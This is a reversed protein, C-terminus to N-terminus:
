KGIFKHRWIAIVNTETHHEDPHNKYLCNAIKYADDFTNILGFANLDEPSFSEEFGGCNTLASVEFSLDLLEYGLFDHGEMVINNCDQDPAIIVTLFNFKEEFKINALVFESTKYLGSLSSEGWHVQEWYSNNEEEVKVLDENLMYDLGAVEKLHSLKSWGIYNDWGQNKSNYVGRAAHLFENAM